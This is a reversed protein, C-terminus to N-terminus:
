ARVWRSRRSTPLMARQGPRALLALTSHVPLGVGALTDLTVWANPGDEQRM